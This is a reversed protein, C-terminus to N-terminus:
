LAKPVELERALKAFLGRIIPYLMLSTVLGLINGGILFSWICPKPLGFTVEFSYNIYQIASELVHAVFVPMVNVFQM